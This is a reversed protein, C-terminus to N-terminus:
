AISLKMIKEDFAFFLSLQCSVNISPFDGVDEMVNLRCEDFSLITIPHDMASLHVPLIVWLLIPIISIKKIDIRQHGMTVIDGDTLSRQMGVHCSIM